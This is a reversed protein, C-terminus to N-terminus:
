MEPKWWNPRTADNNDNSWCKNYKHRINKGCVGYKRAKPNPKKPIVTVIGGSRGDAGADM